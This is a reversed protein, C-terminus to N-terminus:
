SKNPGGYNLIFLCYYGRFTDLSKLRQKTNTLEKQQEEEHSISEDDKAIYRKYMRKM